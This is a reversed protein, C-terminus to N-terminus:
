KGKEVPLGAERWNDIGATFVHVQYDRWALKKEVIRSENCTFSFCYLVVKKGSALAKQIEIDRKQVQEEFQTHPWNIAGPIHDIAYFYPDRVDYILVNGSDHLSYFEEIGIGTSSGITKDRPSVKVPKSKFETPKKVEEKPKVEPACSVLAWACGLLVLSKIIQNM